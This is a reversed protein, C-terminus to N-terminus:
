YKNHNLSIPHPNGPRQYEIIQHHRFTMTYLHVANKTLKPAFVGDNLTVPAVEIQASDWMDADIFSQLIEAGGEVLLSTINHRNYLDALVDRLPLDYRLTPADGNFVIESGTLRHRRDIVVRVPNRGTWTRVTLQPNDAIVTGSGVLIADHDARVRHVFVSTLLDSLKAPLPNETTRRHDIFGDASQAWKLTIYPRHLTHATLFKVNLAEAEHRLCGVAVEIGADRLSEIGKGDVAPFPDRCAVVARRLRKEVILDACPPTKGTHACPELSVYITAQPLLRANGRRETDAIANVEAHPGGFKRHYGEGIIRGDAVIVAGVMPNPSVRYRGLEALQLARRMYRIDNDDFSDM